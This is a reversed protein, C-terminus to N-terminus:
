NFARSFMFVHSPHEGNVIIPSHPDSAANVNLYQARDAVWAPVSQSKVLRELFVNAENFRHEVIEVGTGKCGTAMVLHLVAKGLGSGIDLFHSHTGFSM